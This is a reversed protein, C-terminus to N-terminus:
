GSRLSPDGPCSAAVFAKFEAYDRIYDAEDYIASALVMCVAGESFGAVDRWVPTEISLAHDPRQLHWTKRTGKGDDTHVTFRGAVPIMLQKLTKHAHAGRTKGPMVHHLYYIRKVPFDWQEGEQGFTISGREDTRSPLAVLRPSAEVM